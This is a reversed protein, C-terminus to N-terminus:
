VFTLMCRNMITSDLTRNLLHREEILEAQKRALDDYRVQLSHLDHRLQTIVSTNANKELDTVKTQLTIVQQEYDKILLAKTAKEDVFQKAM